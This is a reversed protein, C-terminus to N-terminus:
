IENIESPTQKQINQKRDTTSTAVYGMLLHQIFYRKLYVSLYTQPIKKWGNKFCM